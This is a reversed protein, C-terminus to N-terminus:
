CTRLYEDMVSAEAPLNGAKMLFKLEHLLAADKRYRSASSLALKAAEEKQGARINMEIRGISDRPSPANRAVAEMIRYNLQMQPHSLDFSNYSGYTNDGKQLIILNRYFSVSRTVRGFQAILATSDPFSQAVAPCVPNDTAGTFGEAGHIALSIAYATHFMTQRGDLSGGLQPYFSTMTDEVVYIGQQALRPYLLFFSKQTPAVVHSADDIVIDFPGHTENIRELIAADSQPGHYVFVRKPLDLTKKAVDLGVITGNPFYEAWTMLSAGGAHPDDYGGVGIELLRVPRHRLDKFLSHYVPTYCHSGFKNTGYRVAIQTLTDIDSNTNLMM